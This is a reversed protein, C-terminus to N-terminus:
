RADPPPELLVRANVRVTRDAGDLHLTVPDASTVQERSLWAAGIDAPAAILQGWLSEHTFEIVYIELFYHTLLGTQGKRDTMREYEVTRLRRCTVDEPTLDHLLSTEHVLEERLERFPSVERGQESYFWDRFAPLQAVPLTLRLDQETPDEPIAGFRSLLTEDDYELAGGIPSLIYVGKQRRNRNVLLFLGLSPHEIRCLTACSIRIWDAQNM